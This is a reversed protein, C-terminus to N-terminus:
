ASPWWRGRAVKAAAAMFQPDLDIAAALVLMAHHPSYRRQEANRVVAPSLAYRDAFEVQSMRLREFRLAV